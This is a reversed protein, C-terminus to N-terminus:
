CTDLAIAYLVYLLEFACNVQTEIRQYGASM